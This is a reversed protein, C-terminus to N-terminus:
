TIRLAATGQLIADDTTTLILEEAMVKFEGNALTFSGTAYTPNGGGSGSPPAAFTGDARLFNTTGGPYGGLDTVSVEDSSGVSHTAAHTTSAKADLASQVTLGGSASIATAPHSGAVDLGSLAGHVSIGGGGAISDVLVMYELQDFHGVAGTLPHYVRCIVTNSSGTDIYDAFNDAGVEAEVFGNTTRISTLLDFTSTSVNWLSYEAKHTGTGESANTQFRLLNFATVNAFSIQLDFGPTGGSIESWDYINADNRTALSTIDGANHTGTVLNLSTAPYITTTIWKGKADSASYSYIYRDGPSNVSDFGEVPVLSEGAGTHDHALPPYLLDAQTETLKANLEAQLDIQDSISGTISGWAPAGGSDADAQWSFDYDGDSNKKLVQATTGGIPALGAHAGPDAVHVSVAADAAGAADFDTTAAEAATGLGVVAHAENWEGKNVEAGPQDPLTAVKNHTIVVAM